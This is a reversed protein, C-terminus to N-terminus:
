ETQPESVETSASHLDAILNEIYQSLIEKIKNEDTELTIAPTLIDPMSELKNRITIYSDMVANRVENIALLKGQEKEYKMKAQLFSVEEKNARAQQYKKVYDSDDASSTEKMNALRSIDKSESILKISEDVDVQGKDNFVLKGANKLQTVHSRSTDIIRSFEAQSVFNEM